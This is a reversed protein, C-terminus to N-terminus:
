HYSTLKEKLFLQDLAINECTAPISKDSGATLLSSSIFVYDLGNQRM